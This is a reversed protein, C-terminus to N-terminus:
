EGDMDLVPTALGTVMVCRHDQEIVSVLRDGPHTRPVPVLHVAV